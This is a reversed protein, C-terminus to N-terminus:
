QRCYCRKFLLSSIDYRPSDQFISSVTRNQKVTTYCSQWPIFPARDLTEALKLFDSYWTNLNERLTGYIQGNWFLTDQLFFTGFVLRGIDVCMCFLMNGNFWDKWGHCRSDEAHIAAETPWFCKVMEPLPQVMSTSMNVLWIKGLAQFNFVVFVHTVDCCLGWLM